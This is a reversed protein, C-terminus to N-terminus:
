KKRFFAQPIGDKMTEFILLGIGHGLIMNQIPFLLESDMFIFEVWPVDVGNAELVQVLKADKKDKM